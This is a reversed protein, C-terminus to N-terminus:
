VLAELEVFVEETGEEGVVIKALIEDAGGEGFGTGAFIEDIGKGL